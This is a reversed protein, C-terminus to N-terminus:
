IEQPSLWRFSVITFKRGYFRNLSSLSNGRATPDNSPDVYDPIRQVIAECYAKAVTKGTDDLAEGYSRIRFTDSRSALSPGIVQLVDAQTLWGPIGTSRYGQENKATNLMTRDAIISAISGYNNDTSTAAWVPNGDADTDSPRDARDEGDMDARPAGERESLNCRDINSTVRSLGKKAGTFDINIGSEDIASQLAGSRTMAAQRTIDGIARNVFHSLSVFPGRMRVQKVIETALADLETDTLRRYGSYSDEATGTAPNAAPSLQELSRPFSANTSASADARHKFHKSSALMAKWANKDTSNVNFAGEVTLLSACKVPDKLDSATSSSSLRTLSPNTPTTASGSLTSLFYSDWIASNLLYSIDYYNRDTVNSGTRNPAGLLVYDKRPQLTLSRKVFPTAYSNAFANGPQHCLSAAVDDGTLDAHQFQAISTFQSPVSFLVTKQSGTWNCGWPMPSDLNRTFAQGTQGGPAVDSLQAFGNNSEMFYPPANYSAIPRSIRTGQLNFDAYTRLTSSRQGWEYLSPMQNIYDVGPQSLQFSFCMLPVPSTRAQCAALDYRRTNAGFYGNDLELGEIRRLPQASSSSGALRMDLGIFTTQWSERVDLSPLVVTQGQSNVFPWAGAADLEVCKNFDTPLSSGFPVLDVVLRQAGTGISRLAYGGLTYARAEGVALSASRIRFITQNFVAPETSSIFVSNTGLNWIRSPNNGSPTLSRIEFELDNNWKLPVSYPNAIGIAIKGCANAKSAAGANTTAPSFKVGMLIRLDTILPAISAANVSTAARVILSGNELNKFRDHFEKLADWKPALMNSGGFRPIINSGRVPYNTITSVPNTNPLTGELIPTLDVRTGGSLSDTLLGKSDSTAAHFVTQLPSAGSGGAKASPILLATEPLSVLSPLSDHGASSPIPYDKMGDVTEWGRRQASLSAYSTPDVNTRRLNIRAKVGEDGIWWAYRGTTKSNRSIGVLPAAVFRPLTTTNAQGVTSPGVLVVATSTNSVSGDSKVACSSLSPTLIGTGSLNENGSILWHSIRPSPTRTLIETGPTTSTSSNRWIGTWHRTGNQVASLGKNISNISSNNVPAKGVPLVAGNTDGALDASGTTRQDPGAQKQLESLAIMLALRANNRAVTVDSSVGAQRLTITSLTLMGLGIVVLLVMMVITVLLAFGDLPRSYGRLKPARLLLPDSIRLQTKM